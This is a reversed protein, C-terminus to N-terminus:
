ADNPPRGVSAREVFAILLMGLCAGATNAVIDVISATRQDLLVAQVSEIAVTALICIPMILYRSHRLILMLLIGFPVFLLVNAGEEIRSYTAWPVHRQVLSLLPGAASDVPVPWVAIATLAVLYFALLVSATKGHRPTPNESM